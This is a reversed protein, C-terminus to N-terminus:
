LGRQKVREAEEIIEENKGYPSQIDKEPFLSILYDNIKNRTLRSYKGWDQPLFMDGLAIYVILLLPVIKWFHGKIMSAGRDTSTNNKVFIFLLLRHISNLDNSRLYLM